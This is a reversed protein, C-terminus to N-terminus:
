ETHIIFPDTESMSPLDTQKVETHTPKLERAESNNIEQVLKEVQNIQKL